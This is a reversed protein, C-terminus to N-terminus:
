GKIYIKCLFCSSISEIYIIYISLINEYSDDKLLISVKTLQTSLKVGGLVVGVRLFLAVRSSKTIYKRKKKRRFAGLVHYIGHTKVSIFFHDLKPSACLSSFFYLWVCLKVAGGQNTFAVGNGGFELVWKWYGNIKTSLPVWVDESKM